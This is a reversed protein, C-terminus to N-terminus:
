RELIWKKGDTRFQVGNENEVLPENGTRIAEKYADAASMGPGATAIMINSIKHMLKEWRKARYPEMRKDVQSALDLPPIDGNEKIIQDMIQNTKIGNKTDDEAMELLVMKGEDTQYLNPISKEVQQSEYQTPKAGYIPKLVKLYPLSLKTFVQSEGNKLASIQVPDLGLKSGILELFANEKPGILKGSAVLNKQIKINKFLDRDAMGKEQVKERFKSTEAFHLKKDAMREQHALKATSQGLRMAEIPRAGMAVATLVDQAIQDELQNQRQPVNQVPSSVDKRSPVQTIQQPAEQQIPQPMAQGFLSSIQSRMQQGPSLNLLGELGSYPSEQAPIQKEAIREQYPNVNESSIPIGTESKPKGYKKEIYDLDKQRQMNKLMQPFVFKATEPDMQSLAHLEEPRLNPFISRLANAQKKQHIQKLQMEALQQLGQGLGTGLREALVANVNPENLIQVM